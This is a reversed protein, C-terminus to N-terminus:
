EGRRLAEIFLKMKKHDKIGHSSEIGSCVDVAYPFYQSVALSVNNADLGGSLIIPKDLKPPILTWNFFQGTGGYKEESPTDLLIASAQQYEAIGKYIVDVSSVALAKIYPRHFQGCFKAPEEGHFQLWSIPLENLIEQVLVPSPNVLVAVVDVFPPLKQLIKQAQSITVCRPSKPYFILGVADVGLEAAFAIDNERTMGCMKLRVRTTTM